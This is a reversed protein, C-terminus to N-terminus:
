TRRHFSVTGGPHRTTVYGPDHARAHHKPCLLRGHEVSTGGGESWRIEHHAHCMGPPWDCGEATCGGDRLALAARQSATHFRRRRGLDLVQSPGGLVAPIIGAECALRRALGPSVMAGTDLSAAALGGVLTEHTMTVVVTASVGGSTPVRDAPYREVYEVFARGMREPTLRQVAGEDRHRQPAALALLQKRLQHAQLTPLAFRGRAVGHGDDSMTFRTALAARREEQELLRAEHAEGVEPAVLDLIRRGLVRLRGADHDRALVILQAEAARVLEPDVLDRPLADLAGVIVEAQDVVLAGAALAEGVREREGDLAQALRMLRHAASRSTRTEGAWWSAASTAGVSQGVEARAAQAAARLELEGVRAKARTLSCLLTGAEEGSLSWLPAEAVADLEAHLRSVADVVPHRLLHPAATSSM